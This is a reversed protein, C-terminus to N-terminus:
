KQTTSRGQSRGGVTLQAFVAAYNGHTANGIYMKQNDECLTHIVFEQLFLLAVPDRHCCKLAEATALIATFCGRGGGVGGGPCKVIFSSVALTVLSPKHPGREPECPEGGGGRHFHSCTLASKLSKGVQSSLTATKM